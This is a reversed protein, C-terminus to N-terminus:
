NIVKMEEFNPTHENHKLKDACELFHHGLTRLVAALKHRPYIGLEEVNLMIEDLKEKDKELHHAFDITFPIIHKVLKQNERVVRAAEREEAKHQRAAAETAERQAKAEARAREREAKAKEEEAKKAERRALVEVKRAEIEEKHRAEEEIKRAAKESGTTAHYERVKDKAERWTINPNEEIIKERDPHVNLIQHVSWFTIRKVKQPWAQSTACCAKLTNYNLAIENAYKELTNMGYGTMVECALDGIAWNMNEQARVLKFGEEVLLDWSRISEM